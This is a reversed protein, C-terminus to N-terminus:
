VMSLTVWWGSQRHALGGTEASGHQRNEITSQYTHKSSHTSHLMCLTACEDLAWLQLQRERCINPALNSSAAALLSKRLNCITSHKKLVNYQMHLSQLTPVLSVLIGKYYCHHVATVATMTVAMRVALSHFSKRTGAHKLCNM